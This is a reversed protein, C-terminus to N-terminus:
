QTQQRQQTQFTCGLRGSCLESLIQRSDASGTNFHSNHCLTHESRQQIYRHQESSCSWIPTAQICQNRTPLEQIIIPNNETNKLVVHIGPIASAPIRDPRDPHQHGLEETSTPRNTQTSAFQQQIARHHWQFCCWCGSDPLQEACGSPPRSQTEQSPSPTIYNNNKKSIRIFKTSTRISEACTKNLNQNNKTSTRIPEAYTNNPNQHIKSSNKNSERHNQQSESLNKNFNQHIKCLYQQSESPNHISKPPFRIPGAHIQHFRQFNRCQKTQNESTNQM